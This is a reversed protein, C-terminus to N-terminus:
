VYQKPSLNPLKKPYKDLYRLKTNKMMAGNM